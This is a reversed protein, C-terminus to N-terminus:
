ACRAVRAQLAELDARNAAIRAPLSGGGPRQLVLAGDRDVAYGCAAMHRAFGERWARRQAAYADQPEVPEPMDAAAALADLLFAAVGIM